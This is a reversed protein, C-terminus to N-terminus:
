LVSTQEKVDLVEVWEWRSLRILDPEDDVTRGHARADEVDLRVSASPQVTLRKRAEFTGHGHGNSYLGFASHRLWGTGHHEESGLKREEDSM